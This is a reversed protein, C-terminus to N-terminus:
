FKWGWREACVPGIGRERSDKRTLKRHCIGCRKRNLGYLKASYEPDASLVLLYEYQTARRLPMLEDSSYMKVSWRSGDDSIWVSLFTIPNGDRTPTHIAYSGRPVILDNGSDDQGLMAYLESGPESPQGMQALTNIDVVSWPEADNSRSREADSNKPLAKLKDIIQSARAKSVHPLGAKISILYQEYEGHDMANIADFFQPDAFLNKKAMLDCIFNIQPQTATGPLNTAQPYQTSTPM